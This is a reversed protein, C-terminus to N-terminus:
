KALKTFSIGEHKTASTMVFGSDSACSSLRMPGGLTANHQKEEQLVGEPNEILVQLSTPTTM